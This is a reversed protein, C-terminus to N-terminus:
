RHGRCQKLRNAPFPDVVNSTSISSRNEGSGSIIITNLSERNEPPDLDVYFSRLCRSKSKEKEPIVWGLFGLVRFNCFFFEECEPSLWVAALLAVASTSTATKHVVSIWGCAFAILDGNEDADAGEVVEVEEADGGAEVVGDGAEDGGGM